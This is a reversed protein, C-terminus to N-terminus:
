ETNVELGVDKSAEIFTQTNKKITEINDGLVNVDSYALENSFYYPM